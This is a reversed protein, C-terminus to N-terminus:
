FINKKFYKYLKMYIEKMIPKPVESIPGSYIQERGRIIDCDENSVKKIHYAKKVMGSTMDFTTKVIFPEPKKTMFTDGIITDAYVLSVEQVYYHWVDAPDNSFYCTCQLDHENYENAATLKYFVKEIVDNHVNVSKISREVNNNIQCDLPELFYFAPDIIYFKDKDYPILLSVHCIHNVGPVMHITPVSAPILYSTIGINKFYKKLFLSLGICNGSNYNKITDESTKLGYVIYPFTSFSINDYCIQLADEIIHKTVSQKKLKIKKFTM